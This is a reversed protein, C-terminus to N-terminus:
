TFIRTRIMFIQTTITDIDRSGLMLAKKKVLARGINNVLSCAKDTSETDLNFTIKATDLIIM